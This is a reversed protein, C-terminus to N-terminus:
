GKLFKTLTQYYPFQDIIPVNSNQTKKIFQMVKSTKLITPFSSSTFSLNFLVALQDSIDNKMLKLIKIPISNPGSVKQSDLVSIISIIENKDTPSLFFYKINLPPLFEHFEKASYKISSQIDLAINSFYNNFANAIEFPSTVTKNDYYISSPSSYSVTKLSILNKIDKLNNVNDNFFNTFYSHKSRKLLTSILNRYQKYKIHMENKQSTANSKM